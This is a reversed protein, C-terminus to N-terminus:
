QFENIREVGNVQQIWKLQPMKLTGNRYMDAVPLIFERVFKLPWADYETRLRKINHENPQESAGEGMAMYSYVEQTLDPQAVARELIAIMNRDNDLPRGWSASIRLVGDVYGMPLNFQEMLLQAVKGKNYPEVAVKLGLGGLIEAVFTKRSRKRHSPYEKLLEAEIAQETREIVGCEIGLHIMKMVDKDTSDKKRMWANPNNSTCGFRLLDYESGSIVACPFYNFHKTAEFRNNGNRVLYKKWKGDPALVHTELESVAPQPLRYNWGSEIISDTIEVIMEPFIAQGVRTQCSINMQRAQDHSLVEDSSIVEWREFTIGTGRPEESLVRLKEVDFVVDEAGNIHISKLFYTGNDDVFELLNDDRLTQLERRVCAEYDVLEKLQKLPPLVLQYVDNLTFYRDPVYSETLLSYILEKAETNKM